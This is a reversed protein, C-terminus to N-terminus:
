IGMVQTAGDTTRVIVLSGSEVKFEYPAPLTRRRQVDELVRIRAFADNLLGM